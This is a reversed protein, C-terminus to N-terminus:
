YWSEFQADAHDVHLRVVDFRRFHHRIANLFRQLHQRRLADEDQGIAPQEM